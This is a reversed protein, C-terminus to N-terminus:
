HYGLLVDLVWCGRVHRAELRCHKIIQEECCGAEELADSLVPLLSFQRYDYIHQAMKVVTGNEWKLWSPEVIVPRFPDGIVDRLLQVFALKVLRRKAKMLPRPMGIGALNLVVWMAHHVYEELDESACASEVADAASERGESDDCEYYVDYAASRAAALDAPSARGDAFREAVDLAGVCRQDLLHEIQRCCEVAILRLKRESVNRAAYKLMKMPDCCDGWEVGIM